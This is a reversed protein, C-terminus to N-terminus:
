RGRFYDNDDVGYYSLLFFKKVVVLHVLCKPKNSYIFLFKIFTSISLLFLVFLIVFSIHNALLFLLMTSLSEANKWFIVRVHVSNVSLECVLWLNYVFLPFECVSQVFWVFLAKWREYFYVNFYSWIFTVKKERWSEDFDILLRRM